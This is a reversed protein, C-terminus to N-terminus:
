KDNLDLLHEYQPLYGRREMHARLRTQSEDVIEQYQPHRYALEGNLWRELVVRGGPRIRSQITGEVGPIERSGRKCFFRLLGLGHGTAYWLGTIPHPYHCVFQLLLYTQYDTM